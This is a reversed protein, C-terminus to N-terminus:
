SQYQGNWKPISNINVYNIDLDGNLFDNIKFLIKNRPNFLHKLGEKDLQAFSKYIGSHNIFFFPDFVYGDDGKFDIVGNISDVIYLVKNNTVCAMTTKISVSKGLYDLLNDKITDFTFKIDTIPKGEIEIITDEIFSQEIGTHNYYDIAKHLAVLLSDDSKIEPLDLGQNISINSTRKIEEIKKLNSTSISFNGENLNLSKINVTKPQINM